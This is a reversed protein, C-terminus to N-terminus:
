DKLVKTFRTEGGEPLALAAMLRLVERNHALLPELSEVLDSGAVRKRWDSRLDDILSQTRHLEVELETLVRARM